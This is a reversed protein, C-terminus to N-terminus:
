IVELEVQGKEVNALRYSPPMSNHLYKISYRGVPLLAMWQGAMNTKTAKVQKGSSDMIKVSVGNIPKKDPNYIKGFVKTRDDAPRVEAAPEVQTTEIVPANPRAPIKLDAFLTGNAKGQLVKIEHELLRIRSQMDAVMKHTDTILEVLSDESM